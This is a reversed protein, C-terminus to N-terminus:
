IQILLINFLVIESTLIFCAILYSAFLQGIVEEIQVLLFLFLHISGEMDFREVCTKWDLAQAAM